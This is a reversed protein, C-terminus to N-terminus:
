ILDILACAFDQIENNRRETRDRLSQGPASRRLIDDVLQEDIKVYMRRAGPGYHVVSGNGKTFFELPLPRRGPQVHHLVDVGHEVGPDLSIDGAAAKIIAAAAFNEVLGSAWTVEILHPFGGRFTSFEGGEIQREKINPVQFRSNQPATLTITM